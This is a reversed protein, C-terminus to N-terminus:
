LDINIQYSLFIIEQYFQGLIKMILFLYIEIKNLQIM